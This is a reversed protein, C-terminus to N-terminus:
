RQGLDGGADALRHRLDDEAPVDLVPVDDERLRYRGLPDALVDLDEVELELRGVDRRDVAEIAALGAAVAGVRVGERVDRTSSHRKPTSLEASPRAGLEPGYSGRTSRLGRRRIPASARARSPQPRLPSPFPRPLSRLTSTELERRGSPVVM